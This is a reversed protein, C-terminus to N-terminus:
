SDGGSPVVDAIMRGCPGCVVPGYVLVPLQIDENECGATHCTVVAEFPDPEPFQGPEDSM